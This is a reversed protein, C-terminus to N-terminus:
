DGNPMEGNPSEFIGSPHSDIELIRVSAHPNIVEAPVVWFRGDWLLGELEHAALDEEALDLTVELIANGDLGEDRKVPRSALWVGHVTVDDGSRADRLGFDYERDEFGHKAIRRAERISARHYLRIM